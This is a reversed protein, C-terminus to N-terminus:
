MEEPAQMGMLSLARALAIQTAKALKLRAQSLPVDEPKLVRCDRYFVNFRTALETAYAALHQPELRQICSALTEELRLIQHILAVESSHGLLTVDAAPDFAIGYKPANRELIGATRAQAYQIYYVPNEDSQERALNLDFEFQSDPSRSVMFYRVADAGVEDILEDLTVYTARRTSMKVAEGGRVLTVFQNTVFRIRSADYGLARVAAVIDPYQAIHDAGLVNVVLDYGRKLKDVHYAIDPLCLLTV